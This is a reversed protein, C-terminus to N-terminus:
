LEGGEVNRAIQHSAVAAEGDNDVETIVMSASHHIVLQQGPLVITTSNSEEIIAPGAIREDVPLQERRFVPTALWGSSGFHVRRVETPGPNPSTPLRPTSIAESPDFAVAIFNVLEVVAGEIHYGYTREHAENFRQVTLKLLDTNDDLPLSVAQEFNQGLYRAHVSVTVVPKAVEGDERLEALASVAAEMAVKRVQVGDAYDSRLIRTVTRDVRRDASITGLASVLGPDSPIIVGAMGVARALAAAHLPGAGGFAILQLRRYDVGREAALLRIANSMSVIAVDIIAEAAEELNGNLRLAIDRVATAALDARLGLEGGAFYQPNLRGLVVNADTVTAQSGGRDYCAPGPDAGASAPGVQLFGGRDFTALSSGGAGITAIDVVPVAIPLAWEFEYEQSSRLAGNIILGVDASTGGMDFTIADQAGAARAADAGGIMGGALGSIILNVPAAAARASRVQGGNSKLLFPPCTLGQETSLEDLELAFTSVLRKLYADVIVTLGREFERWVPAVVSSVSLPVDPLVEQIRRTLRQEHEPNVYSFLLNVAIAVDGKAAEFRSRLDTVVREIEAETLEQHVSGDAKIREVVGVCDVPDIYPRPKQWSGSYLFPRNIRQIFPVDEFGRTTVYLTRQGRRQLLCNTAITTGLVFVDVDEVPVPIRSLATAVAESPRHPTSPVKLTFRESTESNLM